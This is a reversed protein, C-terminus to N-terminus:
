IGSIVSTTKGCRSPGLVAVAGRDGSRKRRRKTPMQSAPAQSETAVLSRGVYGLQFRGPVSDRVVLPALDKRTALRGEAPVGLRKRPELGFRWRRGVLHLVLSVLAVSVAAAAATCLWYVLPAPLVRAAAAPWALQPESLHGPLAVTARAADTPTA